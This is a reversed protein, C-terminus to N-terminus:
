IDKIVFIILYILDKINRADYLLENLSQNKYKWNKINNKLKRDENFLMEKDKKFIM